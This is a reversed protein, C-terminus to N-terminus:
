LPLPDDELSTIAVTVGCNFPVAVPFLNGSRPLNTILTGLLSDNRWFTLTRSDYDCVVTVVERCGFLVNNANMPAERSVFESRFSSYSRRGRPASSQHSGEYKQGGDEIGWFFPSQQLSNQEGFATFSSTTVGVLHGGGMNGGTDSSPHDFAVRFGFTRRSEPQESPNTLGASDGRPLANETRIARGEAAGSPLHALNQRDGEGVQIANGSRGRGVLQAPQVWQPKYSGANETAARLLEVPNPVQQQPSSSERQQQTAASSSSHFARAAELLRRSSAHNVLRNNLLRNRGAMGSVEMALSEMASDDAMDMNDVLGVSEWLEDEDLDDPMGSRRAGLGRALLGVRAAHAAGHRRM